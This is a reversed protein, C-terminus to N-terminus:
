SDGPFSFHLTGLMCLLLPCHINRQYLHAHELPITNTFLRPATVFIIFNTFLHMNFFVYDFRIGTHVIALFCCLFICWYLVTFICLCELVSQLTNKPKFSLFLLM